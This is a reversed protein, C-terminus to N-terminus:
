ALDDDLDQLLLFLQHVLVVGGPRRGPELPAARQDGVQAPEADVVADALVQGAAAAEGALALVDLLREPAREVGGVEAGDAPVLRHRPQVASPDSIFTRTRIYR